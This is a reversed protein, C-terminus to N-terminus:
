TWTALCAIFSGPLLFRVTVEDGFRLLAQDALPTPVSSVLRQGELFTGNRSRQDVISWEDGSRIFYCHVKSVTGLALCVDQNRARGLSIMNPFPNKPRKQLFAVRDLYQKPSGGLDGENAELPGVTRAYALEEGGGRTSTRAVEVVVLAPAPVGGESLGHLYRSRWTTMAQFGDSTIDQEAQM